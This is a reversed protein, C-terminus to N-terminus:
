IENTQMLHELTIRPSDWNAMFIQNRIEFVVRTKRKKYKEEMQQYENFNSEKKEQHKLKFSCEAM